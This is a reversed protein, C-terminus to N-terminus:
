DRRWIKVARLNREADPTCPIIQIVDLVVLKDVIVTFRCNEPAKVGETALQMVSAAGDWYHINQCNRITAKQGELSEIIGFFVGSRDCRIISYESPNDSTITTM